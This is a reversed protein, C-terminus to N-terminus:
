APLYSTPLYTPLCGSYHGFDTNMELREITQPDPSSLSCGWGDCVVGKKDGSVDETGRYFM